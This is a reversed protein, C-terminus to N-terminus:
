GGPRRRVRSAGGEAGARGGPCGGRWRGSWLESVGPPDPFPCLPNTLVTLGFPIRRDLSLQYVALHKLQAPVRPWWHGALNAELQDRDNGSYLRRADLLHHISLPLHSTGVLLGAARSAPLQRRKHPAAQALFRFGHYTSSPGGGYSADCGPQPDRRWTITLGHEGHPQRVPEGM